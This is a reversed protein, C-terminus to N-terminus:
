QNRLSLHTKRVVRNTSHELCGEARELKLSLSKFRVMTRNSILLTSENAAIDVAVINNTSNRLVYEDESIPSFCVSLLPSLHFVAGDCIRHFIFLM